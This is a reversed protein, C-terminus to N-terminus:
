KRLKLYVKSKTSAKSVGREKSRPISKEFSKNPFSKSSKLISVNSKLISKNSRNNSIKSKNHLSNQSVKRASKNSKKSAHRKISLTSKVRSTKNSVM